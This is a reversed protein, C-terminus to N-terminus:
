FDDDLELDKRRRRKAKLIMVGTIGAAILLAPIGIILYTRLKGSSTEPGELPQDPPINEMPPMENVMVTFPKRIESPKGAADEFTFVIEGSLEGAANPTISPEFSDSRGSAFNGVYYNSNTSQFDGEVSVMLNYLISKGMNYFQLSLPVPQMPFAEGLVSVEGATLRAAQLVPISVTEKTTYPNGKDDEYEFNLSLTYMKPEADAKARLTLAEEMAGRAPISEIYFTNSGNVTFTGDDSTITLKINGINMLSSTNLFSLSLSTDEGALAEAPELAYRNVIIRPVTKKEGAGATGEVYVGAYQLLSTKVPQGGQIVEYDVAISVPYSKTPADPAVSLAFSLTKSQGPSLSPIIVNSLSVPVLEKDATVAVKVNHAKVGGTNTVKFRINFKEKPLLTTNPTSLSEIIVASSSGDGSKVPIFIQSEESVATGTEDKYDWKVGLPQSGGAISSSVTLNFTAEQMMGGSIRSIRRTGTDGDLAFGESKLGSLSLKIDKAELSGENSVRVILKLKEGPVAQAPSSTIGYLSLRSPTSNNNVKIYLGESSTFPDGFANSYQGNLKLAYVGTATDPKIALNFTIIKIENGAMQSVSQTLNVMSPLYPIKNKDEPELTLTINQATHSSLNKVPINLTLTRGADVAPMSDSGTIVLKPAYKTTDAPQPAPTATAEPLTPVAQTISLTQKPGKTDVGSNKYAFSVALQTGKGSYVVPLDITFAAKGGASSLDSIENSTKGYFSSSDEIQMSAPIYLAPDANEVTLQLTVETGENIQSTNGKIIKYGTVKIANPDSVAAGYSVESNWSICSLFFLLALALSTYKRSWVAQNHKM